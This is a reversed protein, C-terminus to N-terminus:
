LLKQKIEHRLSYTFFSLLASILLIPFILYKLGSVLDHITQDAQNDKGNQVLLEINKNLETLTRSNDRLQITFDSKLQNVSSTLSGIDVNFSRELNYLRADMKSLKEELKLVNVSLSSLHKSHEELFSFDVQGKGKGSSAITSLGNVKAELSHFIDLLEKNAKQIERISDVYENGLATAPPQTTKGIPKDEEDLQIYETVVEARQASKGENELVESLVGGYTKLRFLEFVEKSTASASAAISVKYDKMSKIKKTKLCVQNNTQILLSGSYSSIRLTTPVQSEQYPLLCSGFAHDYLEDKSLKSFDISGDNLFAHVSSGQTSDSDVVVKLGEFKSSGGFFSTDKLNHDKVFNLSLGSSTKGFSGMSRFVAEITWSDYAVEYENSILSKTNSGPTLLIRGDEFKADGQFNWNPADLVELTELDPLSIDHDVLKADEASHAAVAAM